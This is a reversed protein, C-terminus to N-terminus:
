KYWKKMSERVREFIKPNDFDKETLKDVEEPTYFTKEEKSTNNKMSGIPEPVEKPNLKLYMEYKEKPSLSPNLKNSFEIFKSDKLEDAKVGISALEKIDEQEKRKEALTKFVIKERSTMNEFGKTALAEVEEVIEDYGGSIIEQAEAKALIELDKQSYTPEQPIQVGQEKYFENLKSETEELNNTGLGAQLAREINGYKQEYERKIKAERRAIKKSLLEDVRANLEDETYLKEKTEEEQPEEKEIEEENLEVEQNTKMGNDVLEETAQEVVNEPEEVMLEKEEEM